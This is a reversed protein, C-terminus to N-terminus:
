VNFMDQVDESIFFPGVSFARFASELPLQYYDWRIVASSWPIRTTIQYENYEKIFYLLADM